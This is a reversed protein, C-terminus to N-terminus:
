KEDEKAVVKIEYRSKGLKRVLALGIAVGIIGIVAGDFHNFMSLPTSALM